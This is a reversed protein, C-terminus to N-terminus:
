ENNDDLNVKVTVNSPAANAEMQLDADTPTTGMRLKTSIFDDRTKSSVNLRIYVGDNSKFHLETFSSGPYPEEFFKFGAKEIISRMESVTTDVSANRIYQRSSSRTRSHDEPYVKKDGFIDESVLGYKGTDINLSSYVALIRQKRNNNNIIPIIVTFVLVVAAIIAVLLIYKLNFKTKQKIKLHSKKAM